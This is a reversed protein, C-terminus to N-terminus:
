FLFAPYSFLRNLFVPSSNIPANEQKESFFLFYLHFDPFVPYRKVV